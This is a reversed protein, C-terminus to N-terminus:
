VQRREDAAKAHEEERSLKWSRPDTYLVNQGLDEAANAVASFDAICPCHCRHHLANQHQAASKCTQPCRCARRALARLQTVSRVGHFDQEDVAVVIVIDPHAIVLRIKRVDDDRERVHEVRDVHAVKLALHAANIGNAAHDFDCGLASLLRDRIIRNDNREAARKHSRRHWSKRLV